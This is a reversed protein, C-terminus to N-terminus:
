NGLGTAIAKTRLEKLIRTGTKLTNGRLELIVKKKKKAQKTFVSEPGKFIRGRQLAM